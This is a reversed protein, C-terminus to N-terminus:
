AATRKGSLVARLEEEVPKSTDLRIVPASSHLALKELRAERERWRQTWAARSSAGDV